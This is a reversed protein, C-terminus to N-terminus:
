SFMSPPQWFLVVEDNSYKLTPDFSQGSAVTVGAFLGCSPPSGATGGRHSASPVSPHRIGSSDNSGFDDAQIVGGTGHISGYESFPVVVEDLRPPAFVVAHEECSGRSNYSCSKDLNVPSRDVPDRSLWTNLVQYDIPSRDLSAGVFSVTISAVATTDARNHMAKSLPAAAM